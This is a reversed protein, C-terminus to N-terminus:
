LAQKSSVIDVIDQVLKINELEEDTIQINFEDELRMVIEIKDLTHANFDNDLDKSLDKDSCEVEFQKAVFFLVKESVNNNVSM